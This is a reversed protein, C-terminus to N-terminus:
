ANQRHERAARDGVHEIDEVQLADIHAQGFADHDVVVLLQIRDFVAIDVLADLVDGLQRVGFKVDDGLAVDLVEPLQCALLDVEVDLFAARRKDPLRKEGQQVNRDLRHEGEGVLRLLLQLAAFDSCGRTCRGSRPRELLNELFFVIKVQDRDVARQGAVVLQARFIHRGYERVLLIRGEDWFPLVHGRDGVRGDQRDIGPRFVGVTVPLDRVEHVPEEVIDLLEHELRAM